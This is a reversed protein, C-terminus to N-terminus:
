SLGLAINKRLKRRFRGPTTDRYKNFAEYFQSTSGFGTATSVDLVGEDTFALLREAHAVRVRLVYEWLSMGCARKFAQMLYNPHLGVAEGIMAASLKTAHAASVYHIVKDMMGPISRAEAPIDDIQAGGFRRLRRHVDRVVESDAAQSQGNQLGWREAINRLPEPSLTDDALVLLESEVIRPGIKDPLAWRLIWSLPMKMWSHDTGLGVGLYGFPVAGWFVVLNGANVTQITAGHLYKIAGSFIYHCEVEGHYKLPEILRQRESPQARGSSFGYEPTILYRADPTGNTITM